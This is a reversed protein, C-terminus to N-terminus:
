GCLFTPPMEWKLQMEEEIKEIEITAEDYIKQGNMTIGGPLQMGEFKKLNNGWQLKILATAYQKLFQDNYIKPWDDPDLTQYCDIIIWDGVSLTEGWSVDIFLRNMNRNFRVPPVGNLMTDLMELHERTQEYNVLSGIYGANYVDNLMMQYKASWMGTSSSSNSVLPFIRSVFLLDDAITVYKNIIDDSTIQYKRYMKIVADSHYERYFQIADDIRDDVQDDDINIEVVPAGLRRKCYEALDERTQPRAM